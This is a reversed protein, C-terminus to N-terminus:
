GASGTGREVDLVTRDGDVTLRIWEDGITFTFRGEFPDTSLVEETYNAHLTNLKPPTEADPSVPNRGNATLFALLELRDMLFLSFQGEVGYNCTRCTARGRVAFRGGCAECFEGGGPHDGCVSVVFEPAGSCRPCVGASMSVFELNAWVWATRWAEGIPRGRIGAPPLPLRGLYGYEEPSFDLDPRDGLAYRGDCGPCLLLLNENWYSALVGEGCFPCSRNLPTPPVNVPDTVSGSLVAEIVRRGAPRLAYGDDTKRVFHGCLRDLHYNFQGSDRVGVAERLASFSLPEGAAGLAQLIDMRTENGLVGFAEDASLAGSGGTEDVM